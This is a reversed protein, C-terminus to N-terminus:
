LISEYRIHEEYSRTYPNTSNNYYGSNQTASIPTSNIAGSLADLKPQGYTAWLNGAATPNMEAEKVSANFSINIDVGFNIRLTASISEFIDDTYAKDKHTYSVRKSTITANLEKLASIGTVENLNLGLTITHVTNMGTNETVCEFGNSTFTNTFDGAPKESGSTTLNGLQSIYFQRIGLVGGVLYNVIDNLFNSSDTRYHYLKCDNYIEKKYNFSGLRVIRSKEDKLFRQINFMGSVGNHQDDNFTEFSIECSMDKEGTFVEDNVDTTVVPITPISAIRGYVKAKEGDVFIYFDIGTLDIDIVSLTKVHASASLHWYNPKTTNIGLDLLVKIGDLNMYKDTKTRDIVSHYNEDYDELQFRFNLKKANNGTGLAFDIVDLSKLSQHGDQDTVLGIEITIDSPLKLMESSVVIHIKSGNETISVEKLLQNSALKVYNKSNIIDGLAGFGMLDMIPSLFKTYKKDSAYEGVFTKVIDLIDTFSQLRLKGKVNKDSSPDGYVFLALNNNTKKLLSCDVPDYTKVVDSAVNAIDVAMDHQAWITNAHYKYEDIHMTGYGRKIEDNNDLQGQGFFDTGLGADDKMSGEVSFGTKKSDVFNSIQDIVDPVFKLSQYEDKNGLNVDSFPATKASVNAVYNGFSINSAEIAFKSQNNLAEFDNFASQREEDTQLGAFIDRIDGIRADNNLRIDVRANEGIGLQSLNLGVHIGNEDNELTELIDLIFSFDKQEIKTVLEDTLFSKLTEISDTDSDGSASDIMEPVMEMIRNTTETDMKLKMVAKKNNPSIEQENFRIYGTGEAFGLDFNAYEIDEQGILDVQLNFGLNNIVKSISFDEEEDEDDEVPEAGIIYQSLDLLKDFNVNVSGEIRAIDIPLNINEVNDVDLAFEFGVRQHHGDEGLLSIFKNSIGTYDFVEVYQNSSAPSVFDDYNKLHTNIAGSLTVGGASITGLDVRKLAFSEDTILTICIDGGQEGLTFYWENGIHEEKPGSSLLSSFDFGGSQEELQQTESEVKNSSNLLGDIVGSLKTGLINALGEMMQPFDLDAYVAFAYWYKDVLKSENFESFKIKLDKLGFYIDKQFHGLTVPLEKGNYTAVADVNFEIGSLSLASMRLDVNGDLTVKNVDTTNEGKKYTLKLNDFEANLYSKATDDEELGIDKTIRSVFQGFATPEPTDVSVDIFKTRNPTVMYGGIFTGVFALVGTSIIAARKLAKKMRPKM